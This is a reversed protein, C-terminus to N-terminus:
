DDHYYASHLQFEFINLKSNNTVFHRIRLCNSGIIKNCINVKYRIKNFSYQLIAM